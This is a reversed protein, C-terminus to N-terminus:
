AQRNAASSPDPSPDQGRAKDKSVDEHLGAACVLDRSGHCSLEAVADACHRLEGCVVLEEADRLKGLHRHRQFVAALKVRLGAKDHDATEVHARRLGRPPPPDRGSADRRPRPALEAPNKAHAPTRANLLSRKWAAPAQEMHRWGRVERCLLGPQLEPQPESGHVAM